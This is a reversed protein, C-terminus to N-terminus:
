GTVCELSIMLDRSLFIYNDIGMRNLNAALQPQLDPTVALIVLTKEANVDLHDIQICRKGNVTREEMCDTEAFVIEVDIDAKEIWELLFHGYKGAGYIILQDVNKLQARFRDVTFAAKEKVAKQIFQVPEIEEKREKAYKQIQGLLNLIGANGQKVYKVLDQSFENIQRIMEGTLKELQYKQAIELVENVGKVFDVTKQESSLANKYITRYCHWDLSIVYYREAKALAKALFPPDQFRYYPPFCIANSLLFERQYLYSCYGICNQEDKFEVWKGSSDNEFYQSHLGSREYKGERHNGWFAGTIVSKEEEAAKVIKELVFNDYWFDDADLFAVYKGCAERLGKNRAPGSGQNEQTFLRIRADTLQYKKVIDQSHDTSGDDVCIIEVEKLTQNLVSGMCEKIYKEANYVPVVVSVMTM